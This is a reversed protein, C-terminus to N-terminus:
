ARLLRNRLLGSRFARVRELHGKVRLRLEALDVPRNLFDDAGAETGKLRM